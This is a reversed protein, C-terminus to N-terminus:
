AHASRMWSLRESNLFLRLYEAPKEPKVSRSSVRPSRGGVGEGLGGGEGM